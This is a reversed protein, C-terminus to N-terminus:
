ISEVNLSIVMDHTLVVMGRIRGITATSAGAFIEIWVLLVLSEIVVIAGAGDVELLWLRSVVSSARCCGKFIGVVVVVALKFMGLVHLVVVIGALIEIGRRNEVGAMELCVVQSWDASGVIGEVIVLVFHILEVMISVTIAVEVAM